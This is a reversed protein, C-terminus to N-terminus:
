LNLFPEVIDSLQEVDEFTRELFVREKGRFVLTAPIAGGWTSEIDNIWFNANNDELVIVNDTIGRERAFPQLKRVYDKKFDLSVLLLRFPKGQYMSDLQLFYPLEKVCPACWTAWFNVLYTTDNEVELMPKLKEYNLVPITLTDSSVEQTPLSINEKPFFSFLSIFVVALQIM